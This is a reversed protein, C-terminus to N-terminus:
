KLVADSILQHIGRNIKVCQACLNLNLSVRGGLYEVGHNEFKMQQHCADCIVLIVAPSFLQCQGMELLKLFFHTWKRKSLRRRKRTKIWCKAKVFLTAKQNPAM